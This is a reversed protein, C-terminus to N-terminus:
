SVEEEKLISNPAEKDATLEGSFAKQLLSQKLDALANLKQQHIFKLRGVEEQIGEIGELLDDVVFQPPWPVQLDKLAKGTFHQIGAGTFYKSLEGNSDSLYLYYLLWRNYRRDECRVRHLAKQFFVSEAKNWIAARGPYGGECILLDGQEVSYRTEEHGEIRMQLVDNTKVEFWQVNINRLYHRMVGKNKQKDLMKGLCHDAVEGVRKIEWGEDRQSFIANLYSEFLERVNALNKETNAVASAIGTFAEDLIAVIRIQEPLPPLPIDLAKYANFELNRIGTSRRQMAETAGSIYYWYLVRHLYNFDLSSRDIVRMMSTFNSFSYLGDTKNFLVVRGVPQKPGGGSKELILDGYQLRRKEFQKQEVDLFAIDLDDLSGDPRFNTNRIVGVHVFPPKKGKWLGNRFECLDGLKATRWGERM